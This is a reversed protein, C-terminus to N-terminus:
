AEAEPAPAAAAEAPKARRAGKRAPGKGPAPKRGKGTAPRRGKKAAPKRKTNERPEPKEALKWLGRAGARRVLGAKRLAGFNQRGTAPFPLGEAEFCQRIHADSVSRVKKQNWFRMYELYRDKNGRVAKGKMFARLEEPQVEAAAKGRGAGAKPVGTKKRARGAPEAPPAQPIEGEALLAGIYSEVFSQDGEVDLEFDGQRIHIRYPLEKSKM